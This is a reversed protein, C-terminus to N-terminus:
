VKLKNEEQFHSFSLNGAIVTEKADTNQLKIYCGLSQKPCLYSVTAAERPNQSVSDTGLFHRPLNQCQELGPWLNILFFDVESINIIVLLIRVM